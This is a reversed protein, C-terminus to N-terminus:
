RVVKAIANRLTTFVFEEENYDHIAKDVSISLPTVSHFALIPRPM